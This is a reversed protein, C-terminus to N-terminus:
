KGSAGLESPGQLPVYIAPNLHKFARSVPDPWQDPPMRLVHYVYHHEVLLEMYGPNEFEGNAEMRQIKALADQDMESMLVTQAYENYAPISAMMNSIILG